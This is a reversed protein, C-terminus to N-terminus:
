FADRAFPPQASTILQAVPRSSTPVTGGPYERSKTGRCCSVLRWSQERWANVYPVIGAFLFALHSGHVPPQITNLLSARHHPCQSSNNWTGPIERLIDPNGTSVHMLLMPHGRSNPHKEGADAGARTWWPIEAPSGNQLHCWRQSGVLRQDVCASNESMRCKLWGRKLAM